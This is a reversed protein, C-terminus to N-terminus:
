RDLLQASEDNQQLQHQQAKLRCRVCDVVTDRVCACQGEEGREGLSGLSWEGGIRFRLRAGSYGGSDEDDEEGGVIAFGVLWVHPRVLCQRWAKLCRRELRGMLAANAPTKPASAERM